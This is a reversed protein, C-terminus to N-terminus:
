NMEVNKTRTKLELKINIEASRLSETADRRRRECKICVKISLSPHFYAMPEKTSFIHRKQITM